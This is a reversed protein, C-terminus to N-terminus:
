IITHQVHFVNHVIEWQTCCIREYTEESRVNYWGDLKTICIRVAWQKNETRIIAREKSEGKAIRRLCMFNVKGPDKLWSEGFFEYKGTAKNFM